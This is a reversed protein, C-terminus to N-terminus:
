LNEEARTILIVYERQSFAPSKFKLVAGNRLPPIRKDQFGWIVFSPCSPSMCSATVEGAGGTSAMQLGSLPSMKAM